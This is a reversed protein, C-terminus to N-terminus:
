LLQQSAQYAYFAAKVESVLQLTEDAVRLAAAQLQAKAVRKKLPSMVLSLFDIVANYDVYTGSPPKDPFRIALNITPNPLAGAERLDAASLGVEEFTAQLARNNLLAVQVAADVTLPKKLLQRVAQLSQEHAAQDEEWRVTKGARERVSRQVGEFAEDKERAFGAPLAMALVFAM